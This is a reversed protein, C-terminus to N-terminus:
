GILINGPKIDLHYFGKLKNLNTLINLNFKFINFYSYYIDKYIKLLKSEFTFLGFEM